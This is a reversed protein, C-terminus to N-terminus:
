INHTSTKLHTVKKRLRKKNRNKCFPCKKIKVKTLNYTYETNKAM